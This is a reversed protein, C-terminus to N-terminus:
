FFRLKSIPATEKAGHVLHGVRYVHNSITEVVEYPGTRKDRFVASCFGDPSSNTRCDESNWYLKRSGKETDCWAPESSSNRYICRDPGTRWRKSSLCSEFWKASLTAGWAMVRSFPPIWRTPKEISEINISKSKRDNWKSSSYLSDRLPARDANPLTIIWFYGSEQFSHGPWQCPVLRGWVEQVLEVVIWCRCFSLEVFHSQDDQNCSNQSCEWSCRQRQNILLWPSARSKKRKMFWKVWRDPFKLTWV